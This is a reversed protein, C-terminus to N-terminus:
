DRQGGTARAADDPRLAAFGNRLEQICQVMRDNLRLREEPSLALMADVLTVDCAGSTEADERGPAREKSAAM